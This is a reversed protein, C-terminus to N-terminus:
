KFRYPSTRKGRSELIRELARQTAIAALDTDNLQREYKAYLAEILQGITTM